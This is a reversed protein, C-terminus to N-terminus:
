SQSNIKKILNELDFEDRQMIRKVIPNVDIGLRQGALTIDLVIYDSAIKTIAENNTWIARNTDREQASGMITVEHDVVMIIKPRFIKRLESEMINYCITCNAASDLKTFSFLITDVGRGQATMVEKEVGKLDKNWINMVIQSEANKISERMKLILSNYGHLHWFDFAEEDLDMSSFAKQLNNIQDEHVHNLHEILSSPAIPIYRKPSGGDSNILSLSELRNLVSYVASRPINSQASIEYGTAPNNKLLTLYAKTANTSLGFKQLINIVTHEINNMNWIEWNIHIIRRNDQLLEYQYNVYDSVYSNSFTIM